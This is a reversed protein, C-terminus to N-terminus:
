PSLIVSAAEAVALTRQEGTALRKLTLAGRALENGGLIGVFSAGITDAYGIQKGLAPTDAYVEVRVGAQRLTTAVSIAASAPVDAFRCLLLQPGKGLAPFMGREGMVLLVRELGLSFGVAPISRKTFMGILNDYRGGGGMSGALGACTIEFIPGTYYSLGRALTPDFALYKGAPGSRATDLLAVLEAAALAGPKGTDGARTALFGPTRAAELARLLAEGRGAGLGKEALEKVVGEAGVKDLKDLAILASARLYRECTPAKDILGNSAEIVRAPASLLLWEGWTQCRDPSAAALLLLILM